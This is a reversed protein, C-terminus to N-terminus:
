LQFNPCLLDSLQLDFESCLKAADKASLSVAGREIKGYHSQTKGILAGAEKQTLGRKIRADQLAKLM